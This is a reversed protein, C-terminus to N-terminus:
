SRVLGYNCLLSRLLKGGEKEARDGLPLNHMNGKHGGGWLRGRCLPVQPNVGQNGKVSHGGQIVYDFNTLPNM